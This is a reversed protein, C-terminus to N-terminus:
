LFSYIKKFNIFIQVKKFDLLCIPVAYGNSNDSLSCRVGQGRKMTSYGMEALLKDNIEARMKLSNLTTTLAHTLHTFSYWFFNNM